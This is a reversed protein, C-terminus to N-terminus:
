PANIRQLGMTTLVVEESTTNGDYIWVRSGAQPMSNLKASLGAYEAPQMWWGCWYHTAPATGTASLGMTFTREGGVTDVEKARANAANQVQATVVIIARQTYQTTM